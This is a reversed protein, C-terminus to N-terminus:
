KLRWTKPWRELLPDANDKSLERNSNPTMNAPLGIEAALAKFTTWPIVRQDYNRAGVYIIAREGNVRDIMQVPPYVEVTHADSKWILVLLEDKRIRAGYDSEEDWWIWDFTAVKSVM